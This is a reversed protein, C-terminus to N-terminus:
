SRIEYFVNLSLNSFSSDYKFKKENKIFFGEYGYDRLICDIEECSTNYVTYNKDYMEIMVLKIKKAKFSKKGGILILKEAGEADIKLLDINDITQMSELLTDLKLSQIKVKRETRIRNTDIISSFAGDESICFDLIKDQDSIINKCIEINNLSNSWASLGIMNQHYDVPEVAFIKGKPSFKSFLITYYGINAGIDIINWNSKIIKKLYQTDNDEFSKNILIQKGISTKPLVLLNCGNIETQIVDKFSYNNDFHKVKNKYLIDSYKHKIKNRIKELIRM